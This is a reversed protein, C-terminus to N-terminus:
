GKTHAYEIVEVEGSSVARCYASWSRWGKARAKESLARYREAGKSVVDIGMAERIRKNVPVEGRKIFRYIYFVNVGGLEKALKDYSGLKERRAKLVARRREVKKKGGGKEARNNAM